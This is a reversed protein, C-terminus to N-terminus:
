RRSFPSLAFCCLIGLLVSFGFTAVPVFSSFSLSGFSILTTMASLMVALATKLNRSGGEKFFLAYDIGIGLTLIVGVIAFFNFPIGCYGFVAAIFFCSIVPARIVKLAQVFGYVLVLVVFVVLYALAVLLLAVRSLDTLTANVNDMKNVAYVFPMGEAFQSVAFDAAVHLPFVASYFKGNVEGIWLMSLISRFSAPIESQPTLYRPSADPVRVSDSSLNLDRLLEGFVPSAYLRRIGEFTEEQVKLSPIYVSTALYGGLVPKVSSSVSDHTLDLVSDLRRVLSEENQLLEQESAGEVIFYNASIGLNNLRANLAESRKLNESMAYLARMDTHINLKLVGPVLALLLVIGAVVVTRPAFHDYIDLIFAPIRTPAMSKARADGQPIPLNPFLLLITAFSSALGIISFVAMQRLLPFDAFTLAIYSLETTMFGLLLGKFIHRRIELGSESTGHKWDTFFHIAYDISVGIVSTGFVFTFVHISGFLAWTGSLAACIAVGIAVLTCVIPVPTRFAWLLLLLILVISVGSIWAVESQANRSSEYSHFPVGSKEIRLGEHVLRLSDLVRDLRALVHGDSAMTSITPSLAASWMVYSVSSDEAALVGDRLTFRGGMLQSHLTFYDFSEAGLLFPDDELHSLDAITFAGYVKQRAMDAIASFASSDGAKLLDRVPKGQLVNRYEFFFDSMRQMASDDVYLRTEAFASDLAFSAELAEAASKAVAFDRHGVLVTFNRMSRASLAKEAESVNKFESSDPLVSYLDSEVKWPQLLGLSILAVHIAAWIIVSVLKKSAPRM